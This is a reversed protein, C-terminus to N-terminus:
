QSLKEPRSLDLKPPRIQERRVEHPHLTPFTLSVERDPEIVLGAAILRQGKGVKWKNPFKPM